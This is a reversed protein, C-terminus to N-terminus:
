AGKRYINEGLNFLSMVYDFKEDDTATEPPQVLYKQVKIKDLEAQNISINRVATKIGDIYGDLDSFSSEFPEGSVPNHGSLQALEERLEQLHGKLEDYYLAAQKLQFDTAM